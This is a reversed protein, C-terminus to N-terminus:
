GAAGGAAPPLGGAPEVGTVVVADSASFDLYADANLCTATANSIAPSGAPTAITFGAVGVVGAVALAARYVPSPHFPGGVTAQRVALVGTAPDTLVALVAAAVDTKVYLPDVEVSIAASAAIPQAQSVELPVTPDAQLRLTQLVLDPTTEGIYRVSIGAQGQGDLWLWEAAARVVGPATEALAQFDVASVARGLLLATKPATERIAEPPDPDKGPLGALPSKVGRLGKVAGGLQNIAGKPPAAEGAQHRYNAVVNKVGTPFRAGRVGDGGTIITNQEDDHHVIYVRDEPGRGFFSTAQQWLIGGVYLQLTSAAGSANGASPQHLYTLPKKKLRFQQHAIRANGNGLIEGTISEGRSVDVVNGHLTVPLKLIAPLQDADLAEFSARGDNTFSLRGDVLAGQGDADALLFRQELLGALGSASGLGAATAAADPPVVILGQLPVGEVDAFEAAPRETPAVTTLKGADIFDFHFGLSSKSTGLSYTSAVLLVLKMGAIRPSPVTVTDITQPPISDVEIAAANISVVSAEAFEAEFSALRKSVIVPDSAGFGEPAGDFFATLRPSGGGVFEITPETDKASENLATNATASRVRRPKRVRLQTLDFNPAITVPPDFGVQMYTTGDKGPYPAASTVRSISPTAPETNEPDRSEFLVLDDVALGFGEAEFLFESRAGSGSAAGKDKSPAVEDDGGLTPRRKFPAITWANKLRHIDATATTEFIQPPQGDFSRSRFRTGTPMTVSLDGEALAAVTATGGVGPLPRYGLLGTIRRLSPGRVATRLYSENAIREDYFGLIDSVYGWMELWMLGFDDGSPRWSALAPKESLSELLATRVAPFTNTQRPLSDLGAPIEALPSATKSDCCEAM